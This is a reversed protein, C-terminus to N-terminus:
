NISQRMDQIFGAAQVVILALFLLGWAPRVFCILFFMVARIHGALTRDSPLISAILLVVASYTYLGDGTILDFAFQPLSSFDM